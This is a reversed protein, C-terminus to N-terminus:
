SALVSLYGNSLRENVESVIAETEKIDNTDVKSYILQYDKTIVILKYNYKKYLVACVLLFLIIAISIIKWMLSFNFYLFSTYLISLSTVGIFFNAELRRVSTLKISKIDNLNICTLGFERSFYFRDQFIFGQSNYHKTSSLNPDIM